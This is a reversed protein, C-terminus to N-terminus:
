LLVGLIGSPFELLLSLPLTRMIRTREIAETNFIGNMITDIILRDKSDIAYDLPSKGFSDLM